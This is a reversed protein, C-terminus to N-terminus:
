KVFKKIADVFPLCGKQEAKKIAPRELELPVLLFANERSIVMQYVKIEPKNAIAAFVKQKDEDSIRIGFYIAKVCENPIQITSFKEQRDRNFYVLRVEKEYAWKDSKVFFADHVNYTKRTPDFKKIYEVAGLIRVSEEDGQNDTINLPLVYEICIGKHYDAYHGWMTTINIEREDANLPSVDRGEVQELPLMRTFCRIRVEGYVKRLLFLFKAEKERHSEICDQIQYTFHAQLLPDIPDNFELPDTVTITNNQLSQLMYDTVKRFSYLERNQYHIHNYGKLLNYVSNRLCKIAEEDKDLDSYIRALQEFLASKSEYLYQFNDKKEEVVRFCENLIGIAEADNKLKRFSDAIIRHIDIFLMRGQKAMCDWYNMWENKLPLLEDLVHKAQDIGLMGDSSYVIGYIYEYTQRDNM